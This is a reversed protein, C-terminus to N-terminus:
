QWGCGVDYSSGGGVVAFADDAVVYISGVGSVVLM